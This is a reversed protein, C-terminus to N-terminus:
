EKEKSSVSNWLDSLPKKNTPDDSLTYQNGKIFYSKEKFQFAADINDNDWGTMDKHHDPYGEDAFESIGNSYCIYQDGRFLYVKRM